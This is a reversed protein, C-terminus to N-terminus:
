RPAAPRASQEAFRLFNEYLKLGWVGSKEPHFQTAVLNDRAAASCFEVGYSTTALVSESTAPAACFSHVFYFHTDQPVGAFVPHDRQLHATNWGMHPVKLGPPLRRVAGPILGFCQVGGEESWDFLLQLGVCVGFFPAGREIADKVTATLSRQELAFMASDCAGQGPLVLAEARAIEAADSSVRPSAGLSELAKAVSRLNGAGYDIVVLRLSSM